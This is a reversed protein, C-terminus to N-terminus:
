LLVAKAGGPHFFLQVLFVLFAVCKPEGRASCISMPDRLADNGIDFHIDAVALSRM